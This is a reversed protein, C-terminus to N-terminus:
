SSSLSLYDLPWCGYNTGFPRQQAVDRGQSARPNGNFAHHPTQPIKRTASPSNERRAVQMTVHPSGRGHLSHTTLHPRVAHTLRHPRRPFPSKRATVRTTWNRRVDLRSPTSLRPEHNRRPRPQDWTMSRSLASSSTTASAGPLQERM